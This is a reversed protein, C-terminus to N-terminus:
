LCMWNVSLRSPGRLRPKVARPDTADAQIALAKGGAREIEKEVAAAADAGNTYTIGV